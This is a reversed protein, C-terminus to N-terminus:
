ADAREFTLSNVLSDLQDYLHFVTGSNHIVRDSDTLPVDAVAEDTQYLAAQPREVRVIIGGCARIVDATESDRVDPLVIDLDGFDALLLETTHTRHELVQAGEPTGLLDNLAIQFFRHHLVLFDAAASKGVRPAGTLGIIM